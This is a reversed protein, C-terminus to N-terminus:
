HNLILWKGDTIKLYCNNASKIIVNNRNNLIDVVKIDTDLIVADVFGFANSYNAADVM